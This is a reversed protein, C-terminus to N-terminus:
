MYRGVITWFLVSIIWSMFSIILVFYVGCLCILILKWVLAVKSECTELPCLLALSGGSRGQEYGPLLAWHSTSILFAHLPFSCSGLEPREASEGERAARSLLLKWLSETKSPMSEGWGDWHCRAICKIEKRLVHGSYRLGCYVVWELSDTLGGPLLERVQVM